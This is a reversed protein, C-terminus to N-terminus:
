NETFVADVVDNMTGDEFCRLLWEKRRTRRLEMEEGSNKKSLYEKLEDLNNVRDVPLSDYDLLLGQDKEKYEQLDYPLCVIDRDLYLFDFLVSSYDTLLMDAKKLFPYIDVEPPLNLFLRNELNVIDDHLEVGRFHLKSLLSYGNQEFFLFLDKIKHEDSEGLFCLSSNRRFTPLYFLIKRGNRKIEDIQRLYFAEMKLHFPIDHLLYYNRPYMGHILREPRVDFCKGLTLDGHKSCTLLYGDNLSWKLGNLLGFKKIPMGHWLNIHKGGHILTTHFDYLFQDYFFYKARLHYYIGMVSNGKYVCFGQEKLEELIRSDNTLWIIKKLGLVKKQENLYLFMYRSNDAFRRGFWGTCLVIRKDRKIISTILFAGLSLFSKVMNDMGGIVIM